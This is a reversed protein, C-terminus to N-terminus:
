LRRFFRILNLFSFIRKGEWEEWVLNEVKLTEKHVPAM